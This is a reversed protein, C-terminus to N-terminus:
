WRLKLSSRGSGAGTDALIAPPYGTGPQLVHRSQASEPHSSHGDRKGEGVRPRAEGEEREMRALIPVIDAVAIQPSKLGTERVM